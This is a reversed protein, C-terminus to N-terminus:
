ITHRLNFTKNQFYYYNDVTQGLHLYPHYVHIMIRFYYSYPNYHWQNQKPFKSMRMQNNDQDHRYKKQLLILQSKLTDKRILWLFMSLTDQNQQTSENPCWFYLM